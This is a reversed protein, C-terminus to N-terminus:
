ADPFRGYWPDDKVSTKIPAEVPKGSDAVVLNGQSVAIRATITVDGELRQVGTHTMLYYTM